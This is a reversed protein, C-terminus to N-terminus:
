NDKKAISSNNDAGNMYSEGAFSNEATSNLISAFAIPGDRAIGQQENEQENQQQLRFIEEKKKKEQEQIRYLRERRRDRRERMKVLRRRLKGVNGKLEAQEGQVNKLEKDVVSLENSLEDVEKARGRWKNKETTSNYHLPLQLLIYLFVTLPLLLLSKLTRAHWLDIPSPIYKALIGDKYDDNDDDDEAM